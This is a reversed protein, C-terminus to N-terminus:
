EISENHNGYHHDHSDYQDAEELIAAVPHSVLTLQSESYSPIRVCLDQRARAMAAAVARRRARWSHVM